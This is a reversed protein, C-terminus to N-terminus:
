RAQPGFVRAADFPRERAELCSGSGAQLVRCLLPRDEYVACTYRGPALNQLAACHGNEMRMFRRPEAPRGVSAEIEGVPAAVYRAVREPGLRVADDAFVQM